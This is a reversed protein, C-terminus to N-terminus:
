INQPVNKAEKYKANLKKIEAKPNIGYKKFFATEGIREQEMHGTASVPLGKSDDSTMGMGSDGGHKTAKVHHITSREKSDPKDM